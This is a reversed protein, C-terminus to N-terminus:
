SRSQDGSPVRMAEVPLMNSRSTCTHSAWVPSCSKVYRSWGLATHLTAEDGSLARMTEALRSGSPVIWIQSALLPSVSSVNLWSFSQVPAHATAHDGLPLRMAAAVDPVARTCTQSALRPLRIAVERCPADETAQDASLWRMAEAVPM